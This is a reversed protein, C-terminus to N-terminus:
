FTKEYKFIGEYQQAIEDVFWFGSNHLTQRHCEEPNGLGVIVSITHKMISPSKVQSM